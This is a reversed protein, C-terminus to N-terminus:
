QMENKDAKKNSWELESRIIREIMEKTPRGLLSISEAAKTIPDYVNKEHIELHAMPDKDSLCKAPGEDQPRNVRM